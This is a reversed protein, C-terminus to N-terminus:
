ELISLRSCSGKMLRNSGRRITWERVWAREPNPKKGISVGVLSGGVLWRFVQQIHHFPRYACPKSPLTRCSLGGFVSCHFGDSDWVWRYVAKLQLNTSPILANRLQRILQFGQLLDIQIRMPGALPGAWPRRGLLGQRNAVGSESEGQAMVRNEPEDFSLIRERM